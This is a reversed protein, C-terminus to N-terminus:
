RRGDAAGRWSPVGVSTSLLVSLINWIFLDDVLSVPCSLESQHGGSFLMLSSPSSDSSMYREKSGEKYAQTMCQIHYCRCVASCTSKIGVAIRSFLYMASRHRHAKLTSTLIFDARYLQSLIWSVFYQLMVLNLPRNRM